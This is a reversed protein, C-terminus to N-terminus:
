HSESVTLSGPPYCKSSEDGLCPVYAADTFVLKGADEVKAM